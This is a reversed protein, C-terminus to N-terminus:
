FKQCQYNRHKDNLQYLRPADGGDNIAWLRQRKDYEIGSIEKLRSDFSIFKISNLMWVRYGQVAVFITVTALVLFAISKKTLM